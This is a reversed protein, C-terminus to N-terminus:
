PFPTTSAPRASRRRDVRHLAIQRPQRCRASASCPGRTRAHDSATRTTGPPDATPQSRHRQLLQPLERSAADAPRLVHHHERHRSPPAPRASPSGPTPPPARSRRTDRLAIAHLDGLPQHRAGNPSPCSCATGAHSRATRAARGPQAPARAAAAQRSRQRHSLDRRHDVRLLPQPVPEQERQQEPCPHPDPLRQPQPMLIEHRM